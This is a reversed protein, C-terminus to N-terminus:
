AAQQRDRFWAPPLTLVLAGNAVEYGTREPRRAIPEIGAPLPSRLVVPANEHGGQRNLRHPGNCAIRLRGADEGDGVAVDVDTGVRWWPLGGPVADPRVTVALFLRASGGPGRAVSVTVPAARRAEDRLGAYPQVTKWPM